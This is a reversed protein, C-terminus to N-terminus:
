ASKGPGLWRVNKLADRVTREARCFRTALAPAAKNKDQTDGHTYAEIIEARVKNNNANATRGGKKGREKASMPTSIVATSDVRYGQRKSALLNSLAAVWEQWTAPLEDSGPLAFQVDGGQAFVWEVLIRAITPLALNADRQHQAAIQRPQGAGFQRVAPGTAIGVVEGETNTRYTYHRGEGAHPHEESSDFTTLKLVDLYDIIADALGWEQLLALLDAQASQYEAVTLADLCAKFARERERAANRSAKAIEFLETPREPTALLTVVKANLDAEAAKIARQLISRAEDYTQAELIQPVWPPLTCAIFSQAWVYWRAMASLTIPFDLNAVANTNALLQRAKNNSASQEKWRVKGASFEFWEDSAGSCALAKYFMNETIEFDLRAGREWINLARVVAPVDEWDAPGSQWPPSNSDDGASMHAGESGQIPDRWATLASPKEPILRPALVFMDALYRM